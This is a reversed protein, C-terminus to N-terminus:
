ILFDHVEALGDSQNAGHPGGPAEVMRASLAEPGDELVLVEVPVNEGGDVFEPGPNGVVDVEVVVL